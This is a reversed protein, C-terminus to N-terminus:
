SKCSRFIVSYTGCYNISSNVKEFEQDIELDLFNSHSNNIGIYFMDNKLNLKLTHIM